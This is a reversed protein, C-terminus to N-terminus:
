DKKGNFVTMNNNQNLFSATMSKGTVTINIGSSSDSTFLYQGNSNVVNYNESGENYFDASVKVVTSSIKTVTVVYADKIVTNDVTLKGTYVGAVQGSLDADSNDDDDGCSVMCVSMVLTMLMMSLYKMTKM